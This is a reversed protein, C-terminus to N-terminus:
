VLVHAATVTNKHENSKDEGRERYPYFAPETRSLREDVNGKAEETVQRTDDVREVNYGFVGHSINYEVFLCLNITNDRISVAAPLISSSHDGLGM